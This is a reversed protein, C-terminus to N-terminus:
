DNFVVEINRNLKAPFNTFLNLLLLSILQALSSKLIRPLLRYKRSDFFWFNASAFWAFHKHIFKRSHQIWTLQLLVIGLFVFTKPLYAM